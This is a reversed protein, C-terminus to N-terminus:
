NEEPNPADRPAGPPPLRGAKRLADIEEQKVARLRAKIEVVCYSWRTNATM